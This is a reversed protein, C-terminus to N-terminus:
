HIILDNGSILQQMLASTAGAVFVSSAVSGDDISILVGGTVDAIIPTQSAYGVLVMDEGDVWDPTGVAGISDDGFRGEFRFTDTDAGGWLVDNAAAPTLAFDNVGGNLTDNGADGFLQDSGGSGVLNDSGGGGHIMNNANSGFLSDNGAGSNINEFSTLTDTGIAIGAAVGTGLNVSVPQSSTLASYDITDSGTGGNYSDNVGDATGTVTDNGGGATVTDSGAGGDLTNDGSGGALSDDGAGGHFTANGSSSDDEMYDGYQTGTINQGSSGAAFIGIRGGSGDFTNAGITAGVDESAQYVVYGIHGDVSNTYTNGTVTSGSLPGDLVNAVDNNDYSNGTDTVQVAPNLYFGQYWHSV